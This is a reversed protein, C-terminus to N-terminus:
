DVIVFSKRVAGAAGAVGPDRDPAANGPKRWRYMMRLTVQERASFSEVARRDVAYMLDSSDPSHGLGLCHGLEHLLIGRTFWGERRFVIRCGSTVSGNFWRWTAALAKPHHVADLAEPDVDIAVEGTASSTLALGAIAGAEAVAGAIDSERGAFPKVTFARTWRTLRQGPSSESYVLARVYTEEQPWLYFPQGDFAAERTLYGGARVTVATGIAPAAPAVEAPV